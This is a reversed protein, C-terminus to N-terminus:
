EEQSRAKNLAARLGLVQLDLLHSAIAAELGPIDRLDREWIARDSLVAYALTEPPMDCSLRAFASLVEEDEDLTCQEGNKLYTYRGDEQRRCGAFLMVLCALSMCLCPPLRDEREQYRMLLPLAQKEWAGVAHPLLLALPQAVAPAEMERCVSIAMPEIVEKSLGMSPMIEHLLGHGLFPRLDEDGMCDKVTDLGALVGPALILSTLGGQLRLYSAGTDRSGM